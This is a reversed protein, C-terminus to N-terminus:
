RRPLVSECALKRGHERIAAEACSEGDEVTGGPIDWQHGLYRGGRRRLLLVTDARTIWAHAVFRDTTEDM